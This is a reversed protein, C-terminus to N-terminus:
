ASQQVSAAFNLINTFINKTVMPVLERGVLIDYSNLIILIIYM